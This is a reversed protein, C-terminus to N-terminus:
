EGNGNREWRRQTREPLSTDVKAYYSDAGFMEDLTEQLEVSPMVSYREHTEIFIVEGSPRRLCLFLPCKGPHATIQERATALKDPTVEATHLRLHV